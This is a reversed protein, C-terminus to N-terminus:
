EAAGMKKLPYLSEWFDPKGKLKMDFWAMITKYWVVRKKLDLVWHDQDLVRIYEVEKGLLKLATFLYDSEHTPVNTDVSGHLLLLPTNIKDANFLPSRDVYIDTANWPFKNATAVGSYEVGWYGGAWYTALSTIGAHSVAAAFINTRAILLETTFGGYSAGICGVRKPDIYPNSALLKETGEIIDPLAYKGWDNVHYASYEQGYGTTGRPEIVYIIYGLATWWNNPYRGGYTMDITSTGGYYHVLCPYKKSPDFDPPFHLRGDIKVGDKDVFSWEEVKGTKIRSMFEKSPDYILKSEGTKTDFKYLRTPYDTTTGICVGVDAKLALDFGSISQMPIDIKSYKADAVSYKYIPSKQGEAVLFYINGDAMSWQASEIAPNFDRSIAQVDKTFPDFLFAQTDYDNPIRDAAITKGIGDFVSPGGLILMKKGDPSWYAGKIFPSTFLLEYHMDALNLNYMETKYYPRETYEEKEKSILVNRGNPNFDIFNSNEDSISVPFSVSEDINVIYLNSKSRYYSQRDRISEIRKLGTKDPEPETSLSYIINKGGPSWVYYGFDKQGDLILKSDGTNVDTIWLSSSDKKSTVFAFRNSDPAWSPSFFSGIGKYSRILSGDSTNRLEIWRDTSEDKSDTRSMSVLVYKGDYSISARSIIPLNLIEYVTFYHEPSSSALLNKLIAPNSASIVASFNWDSKKDKSPITVLKILLKHFGPDLTLDTKSAEKAEAKVSTEQKINKGDLIIAFASSSKIELTTKIFESANLYTLLYATNYCDTSLRRLEVETGKNKKWVTKVDPPIPFTIADGESPFSDYIDFQDTSLIDKADFQKPASENLIPQFVKVPGLVLWSDIKMEGKPKETANISFAVSLFVMLLSLTQIRNKNKIM